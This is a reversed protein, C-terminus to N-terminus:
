GKDKDPGEEKDVNSRVLAMPARTAPDELAYTVPVQAANAIIGDMGTMKSYGVMKRRENVTLIDKGKVAAKEWIADRIPQLAGISDYDPVIEYRSTDLAGLKGFWDTLLVGVKDNLPMITDTWLALRAEKQNNYTNDGSLGLLMSPYGLINSIIRASSARSELFDMEAPSMSTGQWKLGGELLIPVGANTSGVYETNIETKLRNYADETLIGGDSDDYSFVGSPRASNKVLNRNWEGSDEFIDIDRSAATIASVGIWMNDPNFTKMHLLKSSGAISGVTFEKDKGSVCSIVYKNIMGAKNLVITTNEFPIVWLERPVKTYNGSRGDQPFAAAEICSNGRLQYFAYFNEWFTTRDQMPNPNALVKSVANDITDATVRDKVKFPVSAASTAIEHICTFVIANKYATVSKDGSFDSWNATVYGGHPVFCGLGRSAKTEFSNDFITKPM